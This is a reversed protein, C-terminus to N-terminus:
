DRTPVGAQAEGLSKVAKFLATEFADASHHSVREFGLSRLFDCVKELYEWTKEAPSKAGCEEQVTAYIAALRNNASYLDVERRVGGITVNAFGDDPIELDV